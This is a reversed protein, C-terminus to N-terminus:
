FVASLSYKPKFSNRSIFILCQLSAMMSIGTAIQVSCDGFASLARALCLHGSFLSDLKITLLTLGKQNAADAAIANHAAVIADSTLGRKLYIESMYSWLTGKLKIAGVTM